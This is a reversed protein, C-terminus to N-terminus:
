RDYGLSQVVRVGTRSEVDGVRCIAHAPAEVIRGVARANLGNRKMWEADAETVNDHLSLTVWGQSREEQLAYQM